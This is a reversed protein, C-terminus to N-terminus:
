ELDVFGGDPGLVATIFRGNTTVAAHFPENGNSFVFIEIKLEVGNSGNTDTLAFISVLSLKQPKGL